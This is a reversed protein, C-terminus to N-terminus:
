LLSPFVCVRGPGMEGISCFDFAAPAISPFRDRGPCLHLGMPTPSHFLCLEGRSVNQAWAMQSRRDSPSSCPIRERTIGKLFVFYLKGALPLLSLVSFFIAGWPGTLCPKGLVPTPDLCYLVVRQNGDAAPWCAGLLLYCGNVPSPPTLAHISGGPTCIGLSTLQSHFYFLMLFYGELWGTDVKLM